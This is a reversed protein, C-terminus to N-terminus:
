LFDLMLRSTVQDGILAGLASILQNTAEAQTAIAAFTSNLVYADPASHFHGRGDCEDAMRKLMRHDAGSGFAVTHIQIGRSSYKSTITRMESQYNNDCGDSMFILVPTYNAPAAGIARDGAELARSFHNGGLRPPALSPMSHLLAQSHVVMPTTEHYIVSVIDSVGQSSKRATLFTKYAACLANWPAGSMSGSDDLLFVIHLSGLGESKSGSDFLKASKLVRNQDPDDYIRKFMQEMIRTEEYQIHLMM